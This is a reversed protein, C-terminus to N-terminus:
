DPDNKSQKNPEIETENIDQLPLQNFQKLIRTAPIKPTQQTAVVYEGWRMEYFVGTMQPTESM